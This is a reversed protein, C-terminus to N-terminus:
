TIYQSVGGSMRFTGALGGAVGLLKHEVGLQSVAIVLFLSWTFCTGSIFAFAIMMSKRQPAALSGLAGFVVMITNVIPLQYRWHRIPRGLFILCFCGFLCSGGQVISLANAYHWDADGESWFAGIMSPWLINQSYFYMNTIFVAIVPATFDRGHGSKFIAPPTLPHKANGYTEWLGFSVLVLFGVCIPAIIHVDAGTYQTTWVVGMLILISGVIFLIAGIYIYM